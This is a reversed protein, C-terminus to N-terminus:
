KIALQAEGAADECRIFGNKLAISNFFNINQLMFCKKLRTRKGANSWVLKKERKIGFTNASTVNMMAIFLYLTFEDM